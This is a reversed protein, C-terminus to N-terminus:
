ILFQPTEKKQKLIKFIVKLSELFKGTTLFDIKTPSFKRSDERFNFYFFVVVDAELMCISKLNLTLILRRKSFTKLIILRM